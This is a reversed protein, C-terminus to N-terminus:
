TAGRCGEPIGLLGQIRTWLEGPRFPKGLVDDAGAETGARRHADGRGSILLVPLHRTTPDTMLQRCVALGRLRPPAVDLRILDPTQAPAARTAIGAPVAALRTGRLGEASPTAQGPREQRSAIV